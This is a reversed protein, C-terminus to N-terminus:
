RGIVIDSDNWSRITCGRDIVHGGPYNGGVAMITRPPTPIYDVAEELTNFPQDQSGFEYGVYDPDVFIPVVRIRMTMAPGAASINTIEMYNWSSDTWNIDRPWSTPTIDYGDLPEAPDDSWASVTDHVWHGSRRVLRIKGRYSEFDEENILWLVLGRDPGPGNRNELLFYENFPHMKNPDFLLFLEPENEQASFNRETEADYLTFDGDHDIWKYCTFGLHMKGWPDLYPIDDSLYVVM